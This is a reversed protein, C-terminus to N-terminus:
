SIENKARKYIKVDRRGEEGRRDEAKGKGGRGKGQTESM